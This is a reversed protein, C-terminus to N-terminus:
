TAAPQAATAPGDEWFSRGETPTALLVAAATLSAALGDIKGPGVIKDKSIARANGRLTVVANGVNWRLVPGGHHRLGRAEIRREFWVIAPTLKWSQPVAVVEAGHVSVADNIDSAGYSDIGVGILKGTAAVIGVVEGIGEIDADGGDFVTLAEADQFEVYPNVGRRKNFGRRSIWQKTWLLHEGGATEGLVAVASLDDLGGADTGIAVRESEELLADLTLEPDAAEDWVAVAMWRGEGAMGDPQINLNQSNFDRLAEPDSKASDRSEILRPLTVSFGMSPNSWHWNAPDEPDLGEPIECLWAFFRPDIEEGAIVRRAKAMTTAFIGASIDTPATSFSCLLPEKRAVSGTRIQGILKAGKPTAGLLHLEDVIAVSPNFGVLSVMNAAVARARSGTRPYHLTHKHDQIHFRAALEDDARTMAVMGDFAIRAQNRDDALLVVYSRMEDELLLSTMAVAAGYATKINKKGISVFVERLVRLGIENTHGFIIRTLLRMWPPANEGITKGAHPGETIPLRSLVSWAREGRGTPDAVRPLMDLACTPVGPLPFLPPAPPYLKAPKKM